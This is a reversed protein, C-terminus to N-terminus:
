IYYLDDGDMRIYKNVAIYTAVVSIFIGLALVSGFVILLHNLNILESFDSVEQLAYYLLWVLLGIAILAAIIGSIINSIIFPKRIFSGKAGVLKMTHILFRKSYVMLRITNSILAFSIFLLLIALGLIAIELKRTNDNVIQILEKKYEIGKINSSLGAIYKEVIELSDVNAYQSHLKVSVLAPLPNFGLFEEINQGLDAELQKAADEKSIYSTEKVFPAASLSKKIQDIQKESTEDQLIIDFSLTEKLHNSLNNAFLSLLIILGFLFLVLSISITATIKSNIFTSPKINHKKKMRLYKNSNTRFSSFSGLYAAFYLFLYSLEAKKTKKLSLSTTWFSGM